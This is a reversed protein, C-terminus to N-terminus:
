LSAITYQRRRRTQDRFFEGDRMPIMYEYKTYRARVADAGQPAVQAHAASSLFYLFLIARVRRGRASNFM